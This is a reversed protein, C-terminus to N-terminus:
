PAPTRRQINIQFRELGTTHDRTVPARFSVGDFLRSADLIEILRTANDALGQLELTTATVRLSQLWVEDPLLQALEELHQSVFGDMPRRTALYHLTSDLQEKRMQLDSVAVAQRRLGHEYDQLDIVLARMQWIPTLVIAGLLGLLLVGFLLGRKAGRKHPTQQAWAPSLDIAPDHPCVVTLPRLGAEAFPKLLREQIAKPLLSLRLHLKGSATRKDLIRYGYCVQDAPFPSQRELEFAIVQALNERAAAPLYLTKSLVLSTPLVVSLRAHPYHARLTHQYDHLLSQPSTLDLSLQRGQVEIQASHGEAHLHLYLTDDSLRWHKQWAAPLLTILQNRWWRGYHQASRKLADLDLTWFFLRTTAM